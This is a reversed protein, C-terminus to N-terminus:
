VPSDAISQFIAASSTWLTEIHIRANFALTTKAILYLNNDTGYELSFPTSTFGDPIIPTTADLTIPKFSSFSCSRLGNLTNLTFVGGNHSSGNTIGAVTVRFVGFGLPYLLYKRPNAGAVADLFLMRVPYKIVGGSSGDGTILNGSNQATLPDADIRGNRECRFYATLPDQGTFQTVTVYSGSTSKVAFEMQPTVKGQVFMSISVRRVGEILVGSAANEIYLQNIELQWNDAGTTATTSKGGQLYMACPTIGDPLVLNSGSVGRAQVGQVTPANIVACMPSGWIGVECGDITVLSMDLVNHYWGNDLNWIGVSPPDFKDTASSNRLFRFPCAVNEFRVNSYSMWISYRAVFGYKFGQINVDRLSCFSQQGTGGCVLARGTWPSDGQKIFANYLYVQNTFSIADGVGHYIMPNNYFGNGIVRMGQGANITGNFHIEKFESLRVDYIKLKILSSIMLNIVVTNSSANAFTPDKVWSKINNIPYGNLLGVCSWDSSSPSLGPPITIPLSSGIYVYYFGDVDNLLAQNYETITYGTSFTYGQIKNLSSEEFNESAWSKIGNEGIGISVWANDAIGGSTDPTSGASVIKGSGSLAGMWVYSVGTSKQICIMNSSTVTFGDEFFASKVGLNSLAPIALNSDKLEKLSSKVLLNEYSISTGDGIISAQSGSSLSVGTGSATKCTVSFAGTCNNIVIWSKEWSPFILEINATLIGTLTIVPKAAQLMTLTVNAAALGTVSSNGAECDPVWGTNTTEPNVTNDDISNVWVFEGDSSLIRAGKPYGSISTAFTSDYAYGGGAQNWRVAETTANLIGNFDQGYPPIGGASPPTMTIPPFGDTYSAAAPDTPIQSEVPITTKQGSEAFPVAVLTPKQSEKM